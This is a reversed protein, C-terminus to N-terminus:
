NSRIKRCVSQVHSIFDSSFVFHFGSYRAGLSAILCNDSHRYWAGFDIAVGTEEIIYVATLGEAVSINRNQMMVIFNPVLDLESTVSTRFGGHVVYRIPFSAPEAYPNEFKDEPSNVHFM